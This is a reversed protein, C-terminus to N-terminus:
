KLETLANALLEQEPPLLNQPNISRLIDAAQDHNGQRLSILGSLLKVDAQGTMWEPLMQMKSEALDIEGQQYLLFALTANLALIDSADMFAQFDALHSEGSQGLLASFYYYNNQFVVNGPFYQRMEDSLELAEVVKKQALLPTLLERKINLARFQTTASQIAEDYASESQEWWQNATAARALMLLTAEDQSQRALDFAEMWAPLALGDESNLSIMAQLTKTQLDNAPSNQAKLLKAIRSLDKAQLAAQYELRWVTEDLPNQEKAKQIFNEALETEGISMLWSSAMVPNADGVQNSFAQAIEGKREPELLIQQTTIMYQARMDAQPHAQLQLILWRREEPFLKIEPREGLAMLALLGYGDKSKAAQKLAAKAEIWSTIRPQELLIKARFWQAEASNPAIDLLYRLQEIAKDLEGLQTFRRARMIMFRPQDNMRPALREIMADAKEGQDTDICLQLYLLCSDLYLPNSSDDIIPELVNLALEPDSNRIATAYLFDNLSSSPSIWRLRNIHQLASDWEKQELLRTAQSLEYHVWRSWGYYGAMLLLVALILVGLWKPPKKTKSSRMDQDTTQSPPLYDQM